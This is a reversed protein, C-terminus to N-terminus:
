FILLRSALQFENNHMLTVMIYISSYGYSKYSRHSYSNCFLVKNNSDNNNILTTFLYVLFNCWILTLFNVYINCEFTSNAEIRPDHQENSHLKVHMFRRNLVCDQSLAHEFLSDTCNYSPIYKEQGLDYNLLLLFPSFADLLM